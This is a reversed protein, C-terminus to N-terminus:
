SLLKESSGEVIIVEGDRLARYPMTNKEFYAVVKEVAASEPHDSKYHPAISYPVLGLGNWEFDEKGDKYALTVDDVLEIGRLTPAALVSGASYGAYVLKDRTLLNKIAIDFGCREVARKLVFVNGGTIWVCGYNELKSELEKSKGFYARLDLEEADPLGIEKLEQIARDVSEKRAEPVAYDIANRIVAVKKNDGCLRLLLEPQKGVKYSSLYLRM